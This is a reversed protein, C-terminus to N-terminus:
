EDTEQAPPLCDCDEADDIEVSTEVVPLCFPLPWSLSFSVRVTSM